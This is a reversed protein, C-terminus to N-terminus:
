RGQRQQAVMINVVDEASNQYLSHQNYLLSVAKTANAVLEEEPPATGNDQPILPLAGVGSTTLLDSLTQISQKLTDLNATTQTPSANGHYAKEIGDLAERALTQVETIYKQAQLLNNRFLEPSNPDQKAPDPAPAAAAAFSAM